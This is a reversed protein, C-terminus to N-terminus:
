PDFDYVRYTKVRKAGAKELSGRSFANSEAVWSFEAEELGWELVKPILARMLVLGIGMMSYEPRVAAALVRLKKIRDKRHLLRLFGFPFLRGDIQKIRPNYDPLAFLAGVLRGDIEAGVALEPVILYRLGRATHRVEAPSMPTFNWVSALAQNYVSLFDEVDQSFRSRDLTRVRIQFRDIIKEAFPAFKPRRSPMMERHGWYAYLDQAKRFGYSEFLEGYYPPNYPMMFTPPTDFGDVLVGFVHHVDPNAPGRLRFVDHAALWARAADFLAKAVARDDICEFFGIFGRREQHHDIHAQNLIAAVRGCPLGRRYAVFTQARNTQYFPHRHYGALEREEQRLPPIWHPDNEYLVWPLRLFANRQGRTAVATVTVPASGAESSNLGARMGVTTTSM